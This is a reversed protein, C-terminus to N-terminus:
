RYIQADRCYHKVKQTVQGFECIFTRLLDTMRMSLLDLFRYIEEIQAIEISGTRLNLKEM